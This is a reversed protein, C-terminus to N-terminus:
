RLQTLPPRETKDETLSVSFLLTSPLRCNRTLFYSHIPGNIHNLLWKKQQCLEPRLRQVNERLRRLVNCYHTSNV